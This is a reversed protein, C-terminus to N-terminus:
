KMGGYGSWHEKLREYVLDIPIDDICRHNKCKHPNCDSRCDMKINVYSHIPNNPETWNNPNLHGMVTLTPIGLAVAIHKPGNDNGFIMRSHLFYAGFQQFSKMERILPKTKMKSEVEKLTDFEGPGCLLLPKINLEKTARDLCRAFKDPGWRKYKRRSVPLVALLRDKYGELDADAKSLEDKPVTFDLKIGDSEAGVAEVLRLKDNASYDDPNGEALLLNYAWSRGRRKYGVRTPANTVYALKSSTPSCLFDIVLDYKRKRLKYAAELISKSSKDPVTILSDINNNGKLIGFSYEGILYDIKTEPFSKRFARLAPTTLLCDGAQKIQIFLAKHFKRKKNSRVTL